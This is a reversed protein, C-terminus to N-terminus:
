LPQTTMSRGEGHIRFFFFHLHRLGLEKVPCGFLVAKQKLPGPAVHTKIKLWPPQNREQTSLFNGKVLLNPAPRLISRLVRCRLLHENWYSLAPWSLLDPLGLDILCGNLPCPWLCKWTQSILFEFVLSELFLPLLHSYDNSSFHDLNSNQRPWPSM